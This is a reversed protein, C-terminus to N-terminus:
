FLVIKFPFINLSVFSDVFKSVIWWTTFQLLFQLNNQTGVMKWRLFRTLLAPVNMKRKLGQTTPNSYGVRIHYVQGQGIIFWDIKTLFYFNICVRLFDLWYHLHMWKAYLVKLQKILTDLVYIFVYIISNDNELM